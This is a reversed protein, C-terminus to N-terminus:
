QQAMGCHCNTVKQTTILVLVKCLSKGKLINYYLTNFSTMTKGSSM